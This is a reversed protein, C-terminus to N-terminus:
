IVRVELGQGRFRTLVAEFAEAQASGDRDLDQVVFDRYGMAEAWLLGVGAPPLQASADVGLLPLLYDANLLRPNDASNRAFEASALVRRPAAPEAMFQQLQATSDPQAAKPCVLYTPELDRGFDSGEALVMVPNGAFEAWDGRTRLNPRGIVIRSRVGVNAEPSQVPASSLPSVDQKAGPRHEAQERAPPPRYHLCTQFAARVAEPGPDKLFALINGWADPTALPQPYRILRHWDHSIGYRVIPHWESLYVAYGKEVLFDCIATYGHGMKLTKFDEFEAEIVDPKLRDWPVGKLVAFDFGEVDIKLFDVHGIDRDAIIDAVTTVDVRGTEAHTDRFSHLGSIGTSEESTFFAVGSAPEDSVARPDIRVNASTGFREILKARNSPDPEFCHISWGLKDFYAASFGFHAGVDLMVHQSGRRAALLEAVVGTEDVGAHRDRECTLADLAHDDEVAGAAARRRPLLTQVLSSWAHQRAYADRRQLVADVYRDYDEAITRVAEAVSAPDDRAVLGWGHKEVSEALWTGEIVVVPRGLLVADIFMGSPRNAFAHAKYPIVVIDGRALLEVFAGEDLNRGEIELDPGTLADLREAMEPPASHARAAMLFRLLGSGSARLAAIAELSTEFGKEPRMGGPFLVTLERDTSTRRSWAGLDTDDAFTTSPHPAVELEAEVKEILLDRLSETALTLHFRPDKVSSQALRAWRGLYYESKYAEVSFWFLHITASVDRQDWIVERVLHAHEFSGCYMYIMIPGGQARRRLDHVARAVGDKFQRAAASDVGQNGITWSHAELYPYAPCDAPIHEAQIRENLLFAVRGGAAEVSAKLRLDYALYHGFTNIADPDIMLVWPDAAAVTEVRGVEELVAITHTIDPHSTATLACLGTRAVAAMRRALRAHEDDSLLAIASGGARTELLLSKLAMIGEDYFAREETTLKDVHYVSQWHYSAFPRSIAHYAPHDNLVIRAHNDDAFGSMEWEVFLQETEMPGVISKLDFSEDAVMGPTIPATIFRIPVDRDDEAWVTAGLARMFAHDFGMAQAHGFWLKWRTLFSERRESGVASGLSHPFRRTLAEGVAAVNRHLHAISNPSDYARPKDDFHAIRISKCPNTVRYGHLKLLAGLATDCALSGILVDKTEPPTAIPGRFIYADFTFYNRDYFPHDDWEIESWPPNASMAQVFMGNPTVNWRTLAFAARGPELDSAVLQNVTEAPFYIDSNAIALFHRGLRSAYDFLDAYSPRFSIPELRIRGAQILDEFTAATEPPLRGMLTQRDGEFLISVERVGPTQANLAAVCVNNTLVDDDVGLHFSTIVSLRRGDMFDSVSAKELHGHLSIPSLDYIRAKVSAKRVFDAVAGIADVHVLSSYKQLHAPDNPINYQDGAQQYDSFYYNPNHSPTAKMELRMDEADTSVKAADKIIEVYNTDIGITAIVAKGESLMWRIAWSGTTVYDTTFVERVGIVDEFWTIRPDQATDPYLTKFEGRLFFRKIRGEDLLRKIEAAHSQIVVTDMCIYHTPRFDIRRWHRYAANMGVSAFGNAHLRAFDLLRTSSGNGIVVAVRSDARFDDTMVFEGTGRADAVQWAALRWDM